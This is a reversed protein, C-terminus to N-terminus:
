VCAPLSARVLAAERPPTGALLADLSLVAWRTVPARGTPESWGCGGDADEASGAHEVADLQLLPDGGDVRAEVVAVPVDYRVGVRHMLAPTACGGSLLGLGGVVLLIALLRM